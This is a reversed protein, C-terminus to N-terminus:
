PHNGIIGENGVLCWYTEYKYSLRSIWIDREIRRYKGNYFTTNKGVPNNSKIDTAAGGRRRRRRRAKQRVEVVVMWAWHESGSRLWSWGSGTNAAPGWGRGAMGLTRQRVEVVVLWAWHESGSRLWSWGRGTNAAPGWGRGDVGLTRQRVEVGIGFAIGSLIDSAIGSLIESSIGSLIDSSIVSLIDSSIVSLIDSSIGPLIDSSIGSLIDSSMGSPIGSLYALYITLHSSNFAMTPIVRLLTIKRSRGRNGMAPKFYRITQHYHIWLDRDPHHHNITYWWQIVRKRSGWSWYKWRNRPFGLKLWSSPDVIGDGTTSFVGYVFGHNKIPFRWM